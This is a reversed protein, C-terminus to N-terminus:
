RPFSFRYAATQRTFRTTGVVVLTVSDVDGSVDIPIDLANGAPVDIYEVTTEGGHSILALRFTQPLLNQVRAFGAAQWGGDGAEFDEFYDLEAIAIDDVMFGEGNVAADTVYEFRLLVQQGAYESLDVSEQMWVSPGSGGGSLGTYGWGYSNGAPDTDTGSPTELFTWDDGNNTSALVYVYDWDTEIDYWTQYDLTISGSLGGFDFAHTLTMDSEDGKNSWFAYDGSYANAPLLGTQTSGEFSLTYQGACSINIFDAGYQHVDRTQPGAGCEDVTETSDVTFGLAEPYQLYGYRGDSFFADGLYNAITWDLVVDDALIPEDTLPDIFGIATLVNDVSDLGNAPDVVLAQTAEEGFRELFYTVFLCGAGYHPSTANQDNPWDNLQLDPDFLYEYGFDCAGYGNLLSALESMGENVWSTENRDRYWHIMHQFEHALVGYTFPHDLEANDASVLFMEAANSYEAALPHIEDTSSFYGAVGSGMGTTYLIYIHPDQDIGPFWETGFFERTTPVMHDEFAQALDVLEDQEYDVGDEVWFYVSEGVFRLTAQTESTVNSDTNTVWFNRREGVQFEGLPEITDPVNEIGQLRDAIEIPDNEPVITNQLTLLTEDSPLEGTQLVPTPGTDPQNTIGDLNGILEEQNGLFWLAGAGSVVVCAVCAIVAVLLVIGIILLTRQNM